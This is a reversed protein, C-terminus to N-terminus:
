AGRRGEDIANWFAAVKKNSALVFDVYNEKGMKESIAFELANSPWFYITQSDDPNKVVQYSLASAVPAILVSALIIGCVAFCFCFVALGRMWM